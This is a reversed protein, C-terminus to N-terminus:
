GALAPLSRASDCPEHAHELSGACVDRPAQNRAKALCCRGSSDPRHGTDPSSSRRLSGPRLYPGHGWLFPTTWPGCHTIRKPFPVVQGYAIPHMNV